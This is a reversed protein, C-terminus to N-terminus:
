KLFDVIKNTLEKNLPINPSNYLSIQAAQDTDKCDKLIHNMNEIIIKQADPKATSLLDAQKVSVQIDTTGQIILTPINLKKIEEQPNYKFWSTMYPQVSPRFLSYLSTPVNDITEGNELKDIYSFITEQVIKPQTALQKSLQEKLIVAAPQAVGALSIYKSVIPNNQAAIMGILSGESHGIIAIESFRKDTALLSIWDKVDNIYDEFRLDAECRMSEKSEGIGRKDFSLSAIGNYYLAEALMRLSNSQMQPQNGSRDTPGSGAILVAVPVTKNNTSPVRLTGYLKGTETNLIIPEETVILQGFIFNAIFLSFILCSIKKM